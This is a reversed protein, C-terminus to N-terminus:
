SLPTWYTKVFDEADVEMANRFAIAEKQTTFEKLPHFTSQFVNSQDQELWGVKYRNHYQGAEGITFDVFITYVM